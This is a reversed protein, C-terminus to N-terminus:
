FKLLKIIDTRAKALEMMLLGRNALQPTVVVLSTGTGPIIFFIVEYKMLRFYIEELEYKSYQEILVFMDDMTKQLLEWIPLVEKRFKEKKPIIGSMGKSVLMCAYVDEKKMLNELIVLIEEKSSKM